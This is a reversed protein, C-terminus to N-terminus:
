KEVMMTVGSEKGALAGAVYLAFPEEKLDGSNCLRTPVACQVHGHTCLRGVRQVQECQVTRRHDQMANILFLDNRLGQHERCQGEQATAGINFFVDM